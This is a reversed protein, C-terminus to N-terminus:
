KLLVLKRSLSQKGATLRCFYVGSAVKMGGDNCGDWSVEHQGADLRRDLVNHVLRGASDYITVAVHGAVPLSFGIRTSPNFPNPHNQYLALTPAKAGMTETVFLTQTGGKWSVDVRYRYSVGPDCTNDVFSFSDDHHPSIVVEIPLYREDGNSERFVSFEMAADNVSLKWFVEIGEAGYSCSFSQLLTAVSENSSNILISISSSNINAVALDIRADENFDGECISVPRDGVGYLGANAFAGDGSGRLISVSGVNRDAVALDLHGDSDYDGSCISTVDYAVGYPTPSAFTGDGAGCLVYVNHTYSTYDAYRNAVAIDLCGDENFDGIVMDDPRTCAPFEVPSPFTTNGANLMILIGSGYKSVAIDPLGDENFDGAILRHPNTYQGTAFYVAPEFTGDGVGLFLVISNNQDNACALDLVGDLNFDSICPRTTGALVPYAVSPAFGGAGDGILVIMETDTYDFCALDAHGDANFDGSCIYEVYYYNVMHTTPSAFEGNGLGRLISISHSYGHHGVALDLHGDEDFDASCMDVPLYNVLYYPTALLTGDGVGFMIEVASSMIAVAIDTHGDANFDAPCFSSIEGGGVSYTTATAFAFAGEGLFVSMCFHMASVVIDDRGDGNVDYVLTTYADGGVAYDGVQSFLGNGAGAFITVNGSSYNSILLDTFGDQNFDGSSVTLPDIGENYTQTLAFTGDGAGILVSLSGPIWTMDPNFTYGSNVVILDLHDDGNFYGALVDGIEDGSSFSSITFTGDGANLLISISSPTFPIGNFYDGRNPVVMDLYGDENFDGIYPEGPYAGTYYSVPPAFTGDGAGVLVYVSDSLLVLDLIGDQNFEGTSVSNLWEQGISFSIPSDFAGDGSGMIVSVLDNRGVGVIDANGDGNFDGSCASYIRGNPLPIHPTASFLHEFAQADIAFLSLVAVALCSYLMVRM